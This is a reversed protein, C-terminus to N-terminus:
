LEGMCGERLWRPWGSPVDLVDMSAMVNLLMGKAIFRAVVEASAGSVDIIMGTLEGFGRQVVRRVDPDECAAYAQLQMRLKSRDSILEFYADGMRQLADDTGTAGAAAARFTDMTEAFCREVSALFLEKKTGFLRFLYPQSIGVRRAITETSTGALGTDAFEQLAAEIIAERREDATQRHTNTTASGHM